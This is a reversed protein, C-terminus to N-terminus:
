TTEPEWKNLIAKIAEEKTVAWVIKHLTRHDHPSAWWGDWSGGFKIAYGMFCGDRAGPQTCVVEVVSEADLRLAM